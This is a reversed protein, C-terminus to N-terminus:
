PEGQLPWIGGKHFPEPRPDGPSASRVETAEFWVKGTMILRREFKIFAIRVVDDTVLDIWFENPFEFAIQLEFPIGLVLMQSGSMSSELTATMRTSFPIM